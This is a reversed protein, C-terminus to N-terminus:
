AAAKEPRQQRDLKLLMSLLSSLRRFDLEDRKRSALSDPTAEAVQSARELDTPGNISQQLLERREADYGRIQRRLLNYLLQRVPQRAEWQEPTFSPYGADLDEDTDDTEDLDAAHLRAHSHAEVFNKQEGAAVDSAEPSSSNGTAPGSGAPAAPAASAPVPL